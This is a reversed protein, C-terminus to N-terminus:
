GCLKGSGGSSASAELTAACPVDSGAGGAGGAYLAACPAKGAADGAGGLLRLEGDVVELMCLLVRYM